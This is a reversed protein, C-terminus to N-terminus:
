LCWCFKNRQRFVFRRLANIFASSSMEEVVEIHIARICLCTFLIALRKGNAQGGRTRRTIIYWPGLTDVGVYTFPSTELLRTEPLDAMKQCEVKGRLKRCAICKFIISSVLRRRSAIWLGASRVAGETFHRGQYKVAEHHYQVLLTAIHHKGPIIIPNKEKSTLKSKRLRGGVRLVGDNDLYPDLRYLPSGKMLSRKARIRDIEDCYVEQTTKIIFKETEDFISVTRLDYNM